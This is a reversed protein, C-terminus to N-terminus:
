KKRLYFQLYRSGDAFIDLVENGSLRSWSLIDEKATPDDVRVELVAGSALERLKAKIAPTLLACTAAATDGTSHFDLLAQPTYGSRTFDSTM